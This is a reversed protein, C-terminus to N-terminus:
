MGPTPLMDGTEPDLDAKPEYAESPAGLLDTLTKRAHRACPECLDRRDIFLTRFDGRGEDLAITLSGRAAERLITARCRDCTVTVATSM